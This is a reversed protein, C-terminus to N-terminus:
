IFKLQLVFKNGSTFKAIVITMNQGINLSFVTTKATYLAYKWAKIHVKTSSQSLNFVIARLGSHIPDLTLLLPSIIGVPM